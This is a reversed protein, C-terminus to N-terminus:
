ASNHEAVERDHPRRACVETLEWNVASMGFKACEGMTEFCGVSRPIGDKQGFAEWSYEDDLEGRRGRLTFYEVYFGQAELHAAVLRASRGWEGRNLYKM